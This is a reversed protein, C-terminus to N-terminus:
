CPEEGNLRGTRAARTTKRPAIGRCKADTRHVPAAENLGLRAAAGNPGGVVWHAECLAAIFIADIRM